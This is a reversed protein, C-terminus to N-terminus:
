RGERQLRRDMDRKAITDRKDHLKKGKGLAIQLKAYGNKFYLRTPVITYGKQETAKKFKEIERRKLLLVRPRRPEHNAYGGMEYPAIHLNYIRMTGDDDVKCFSEQLSAKGQRLSKVESGTLVLGAETKDELFFEYGAKKNSVITKTGDAM